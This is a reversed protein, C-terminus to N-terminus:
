IEFSTAGQYILMEVGSVVKAGAAKAYKALKTEIPKYIIDM